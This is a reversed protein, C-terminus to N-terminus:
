FTLKYAYVEDDKAVVLVNKGDQFLDTIFFRTDGGLPFDSFPKGNENLLYIYQYDKSTTGVYKKDYGEVSVAFVEDQPFDFTKKIKKRYDGNEDYYSVQLHRRSLLIYDKRKDGVVDDFAFQVNQNNGVTNTLNFKGGKLNAVYTKAQTDTAVVRHYGPSVDFGIESSFTRGNTELDTSPLRREGNRKFIHLYGSDSLAVLYDKNDIMFHRIPFIIRGVNEQANWGNLPKGNQEFGYINNNECAIFIRYQRMSDYDVVFLGNTAPSFLQRPYAEVDKGNRDILYINNKTNFLYQLKENKYYDIQHIDSQIKSDLQREWLIQGSKDLLYLHNLTDQILIDYEDANHKKVLKPAIAAKTKLATRWIVNPQTKGKEDYLGLGNVFFLQNYPTLQFGVPKIKQIDQFATFLDKKLEPKTYHALIQYISSPNIYFYLHAQPAFQQQVFSQYNVDQSLTLSFIYKDIWAQLQIKSNAFIVYEDNLVTYYPNKFSALEQGFLPSLLNQTALQYIKFNQHNDTPLEGVSNAFQSLYETTQAADKTKVVMFQHMMFDEETPETIVLSAENGLWPLIYSKFDQNQLTKNNQYFTVLDKLNLHLALATHDPLVTEITSSEPLPSKLIRQLWQNKSDPSLYGNIIFSNTEFTIDLGGWNGLTALRQHEEKLDNQVFHNLINPLKKLNLYISIDSNDGTLARINKFHRDQEISTSIDIQNIAYEVLFSSRALILLDNDLCLFFSTNETIGIEYITRSDFIHKDIILNDLDQLYVEIDTASNEHELVYLYSVETAKSMQLGITLPSQHLKKINLAGILQNLDKLDQHLLNIWSLNHLQSAYTTTSLQQQTKEWDKITLILPTDQPIAKFTKHKNPMIEMGNYYFYIVVTVILFFLGFGIFWKSNWKKLTTTM